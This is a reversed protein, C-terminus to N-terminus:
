SGLENTREVFTPWAVCLHCQLPRPCLELCLHGVGVVPLALASPPVRPEPFGLSM